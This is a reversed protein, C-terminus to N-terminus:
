GEFLKLPETKNFCAAFLGLCILGVIPAYIRIASTIPEVTEVMLSSTM